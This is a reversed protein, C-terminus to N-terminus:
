IESQKTTMRVFTPLANASQLQPITWSALNHDGGTGSMQLSSHRMFDQYNYATLVRWTRMQWRKM